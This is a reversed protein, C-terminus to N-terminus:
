FFSGKIPTVNASRISKMERERKNGNEINFFDFYM